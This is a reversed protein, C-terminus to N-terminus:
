AATTSSSGLRATCIAPLCRARTPAGTLGGNDRVGHRPPFQGTFISSHAPLTLPASTMAQEFVVGDRALQDLNPTRVETNGYAGLHDARLTDLTILVVYLCSRSIGRGLSGLTAGGAAVQTRPWAVWAAGAAALLAVGLLGALLPKRRAGRPPAAMARM